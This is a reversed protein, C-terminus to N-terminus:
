RVSVANNHRFCAPPVACIFILVPFLFVSNLCCSIGFADNTCDLFFIVSGGALLLWSPAVDRLILLVEGWQFTNCVYWISSSFLLGAVALIIVKRVKGSKSM